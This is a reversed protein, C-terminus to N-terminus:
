PAEASAAEKQSLAKAKAITNLSVIGIFVWILNVVMSAYASHDYTYILLLVAGIINASQFKLSNGSAKGTSVVFYAYLVLIAGAWGSFDAFTM